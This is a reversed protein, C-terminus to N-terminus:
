KIFTRVFSQIKSQLICLNCVADFCFSPLLYQRQIFVPISLRTGYVVTKDVNQLGYGNGVFGNGSHGDKDKPHAGWQGGFGVAGYGSFPNTNVTVTGYHLKSIVHKKLQDEMQKYSRFLSNNRMTPYMLQCSLSGYINSKNNVFPVASNVLFNIEPSEHQLNNDSASNISADPVEVIALVPGFIENQIAYGNFDKSGAVGCEIIYPHHDNSWSSLEKDTYNMEEKQFRSRPIMKSRIQEVMDASYKSLFEKVKALSGPYYSPDTYTNKMVEKLLTRFEYKQEWSESMIIVQSGLCNSGAFMKKGTVINIICNKLETKTYKAPTILVPTACGLESTIRSEIDLKSLHPRTQSYVKKIATSTSLAGTLHVNTIEKQSLLEQTFDVGYDDIAYLLDREILPKLIENLPHYLFPRLPHHKLLIPKRPHVFIGHLIDILSLNSQNGAGLVLNVGGEETQQAPPQENDKPSKSKSKIFCTAFM